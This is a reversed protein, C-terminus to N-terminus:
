GRPADSGAFQCCPRDAAKFRISRQHLPSRGDGASWGPRPVVSFRRAGGLKSSALYQWDVPGVGPGSAIRDSSLQSRLSRGNAYRRTASALACAGRGRDPWSMTESRGSGARRLVIRQTAQALGSNRGAPDALIVLEPRWLRFQRVLYETLQRSSDTGLSQDWSAQIKDASISCGLDPAPLTQLLNAGAAGLGAMAEHLRSSLPVQGPNEASSQTASLIEVAGFSGEAACLQTWLEWPIQSPHGYVGLVALRRHQGRLCSWTRGGDVTRLVAGLAVVAWGHDADVFDLGFLPLPHGTDTWKWSRGGDATQLVRLGPVGVIWYRQDIGDLALWDFEAMERPDPLQRPKQWTKGGDKTACVTGQSGCLMGERASNLCVQTPQRLESPTTVWRLKSPEAVALQGRRDILLGKAQTSFHADVWGTSEGPWPTWHDGGDRTRYVASPFMASPLGVAYGQQPDVFQIQRLWPLFQGSVRQWTKGGDETKLIVGIPRHTYASTYGGVAWGRQRDRFQVSELRCAVPCTQVHWSQGGNTTHLITSRDGVAWGHQPDVFCVDFLNADDHLAVPWTPETESAVLPGVVLWCLCGWSEMLHRM